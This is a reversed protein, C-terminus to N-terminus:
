KVKLISILNSYRDTWLPANGYDHSYFDIEEKIEKIEFLEVWKTLLMWTSSAGGTTLKNGAAIEVYELNFHKALTEVVPELNLHRNSVHIALVGNPKLHKLYIDFAEKTLLHVPIADGSFADLALVDYHQPEEKEMTLRADGLKIVTRAKSDKLFSFYKKNLEIVMPNIEYFHYDDGPRGYVAVTGSGLGVMGVKHTSPRPLHQLTLGIGSNRSYYLTPLTKDNLLQTGHLIRGHYLSHRHKETQDKGYEEVSLM